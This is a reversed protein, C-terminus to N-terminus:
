TAAGGVPRRVPRHQVRPPRVGRLWERDREVVIIPLQHIIAIYPM